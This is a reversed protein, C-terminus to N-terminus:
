FGRRNKIAMCGGIPLEWFISLRVATRKIWLTSSVRGQAAWIRVKPCGSSCSLNPSNTYIWSALCRVFIPSNAASHFFFYDSACNTIQNILAAVYIYCFSCFLPTLPKCVSYTLLFYLLCFHLSFWIHICLTFCVMRSLVHLVTLCLQEGEMARCWHYVNCDWPAQNILVRTGAM